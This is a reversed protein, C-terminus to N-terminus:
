NINPNSQNDNSSNIIFWSRQDISSSIFRLSGDAFAVNVGGTHRSRATAQNSNCSTWNGLNQAPLDPADRIDDSCGAADNPVRCDGDAHSTLTSSGALGFAWVGRPDNGDVGALVESFLLTNSSGDPIQHVGMGLRRSTNSWLSMPGQGQLGFGNDGTSGGNMRHGYHYDPGCNAAYNGRAWNGSIGALNRTCVNTNNSDSPCLYVPVTNGRINAWGADYVAGGTRTWNNINAEVQKYMPGQEIYPLLFVAWNPGYNANYPYDDYGGRMIMAPPLGKRVDMFAHAGIVVQRLNNSCQTRAASERVKQVAPVLLAILIAIIAIVVLLEILTFGPRRKPHSVIQM